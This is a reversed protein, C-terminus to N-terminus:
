QSNRYLVGGLNIGIRGAASIAVATPWNLTVIFNQSPTLLINPQLQYTPGGFSAYSISTAQLATETSANSLAAWGTLGCRPPFKGLPAEDLYPKSGIFLELWGSKFVDYVDNVNEAAAATGFISPDGAPFFYIEISEILFSQPAPLVGAVTMNTDAFTKSSQGKPVQFFQLQTQGAQAYAQFDYLSSRVVEVQGPRNVAFQALEDLSPIGYQDMRSVGGGTMGLIMERYGLVLAVVLGILAAWVAKIHNM